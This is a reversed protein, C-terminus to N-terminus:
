SRPPPIPALSIKPPGNPLVTNHQVKRREGVSYVHKYAIEAVASDSL